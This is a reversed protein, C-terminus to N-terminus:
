KTTEITLDDSVLSYNWPSTECNIGTIIDKDTCNELKAFLRFSKGNNVSIYCYSSKTQPDKPVYNNKMYPAIGSQSYFFASDRSCSDESQSTPPIYSSNKQFYLELAFSLNLLDQKRLADRAQSQVGGYIVLGISALIVVITIAILIEVLTFGAKTKISMLKIM